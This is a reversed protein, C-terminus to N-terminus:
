SSQVPKPFHLYKALIFLALGYADNPLTAEIEYGNKRYFDVNARKESASLRIKHWGNELCLQEIKLLLASGIGNKRRKETKVLLQYVDIVNGGIFCKAVGLLVPEKEETWATLVLHRNLEEPTLYRGFVELDATKWENEIFEQIIGEENDYANRIVFNNLM